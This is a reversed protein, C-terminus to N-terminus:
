QSRPPAHLRLTVDYDGHFRLWNRLSAVLDPMSPEDAM